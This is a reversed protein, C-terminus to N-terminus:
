AAWAVTGMSGSVSSAWVIIRSPSAFPRLSAWTASSVTSFWGAVSAGVAGAVGLVPRRGGIGGDVDLGVAGGRDRGLSRVQRQHRPGDKIGPIVVAIARRVKDGGKRPRHGVETQGKALARVADCCNGGVLRAFAGLVLLNQRQQAARLAGAPRRNGLRHAPCRVGDPPEEGAQAFLAGGDANEFAGTLGSRVLGTCSAAVGNVVNGISAALGSRGWWSAVPPTAGCSVLMTRKM